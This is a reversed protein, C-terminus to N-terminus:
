VLSIWHSTTWHCHVAHAATNAAHGRTNSLSLMCALGAAKAVYRPQAVPGEHSSPGPQGVTWIQVALRTFNLETPNNSPHLKCQERHPVSAPQGPWPMDRLCDDPSGCNDHAGIPDPPPTV